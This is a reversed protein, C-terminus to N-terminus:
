KKGTANVLCFVDTGYFKGDYYYNEKFAGQQEFGNRLLLITSPDNGPTVNAELSHLGMEVFAFDIVSKLAESMLGKGHFDPHLVYGLEGRFHEKVLRWIAIDGIMKEPADKLCIVWSIGENKDIQAEVMDIFDIAQQMETILPRLTYLNLAPTARFYYVEPADEKTIRRLLLRPTEMLPFPYFQPNLM